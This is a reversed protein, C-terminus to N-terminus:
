SSSRPSAPLRDRSATHRPFRAVAFALATTIAADALASLDRLVEDLTAGCALDRWAIRVLERRRLRRLEDMFKSEDPDGALLADCAARLDPAANSSSLLEPDRACAEAVFKSYPFVSQINDM